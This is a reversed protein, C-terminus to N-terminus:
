RVAHATFERLAKVLEAPQDLPVLSYSDDIEVLQADPLLEVLAAGHQPPMVRDERAWVVLVPRDFRPLQEAARQLVDRDAAISRLVRVTERRITPETLVPQLWQRVVADGRKTLWGFSLPLRRMPKVRMQQMFAGFIAPALMGLRVITRGTLGPPYNDFADCSILVAAGVRPTRDAMLLQVLAGGTDNGVLVVDSLEMRDLFEGVLRAIAEVSLDADPHMPRRHGGLPLTPAICRHDASLEGITADWLSSDMLLGHLLVLTPGPGGTDVYDITGSSLEIAPV